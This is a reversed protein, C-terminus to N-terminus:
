STSSEFTIGSGFTSPLVAIIFYDVGFWLRQLLAALPGPMKAGRGNLAPKANRLKSNLGAPANMLKGPAGSLSDPKTPAAQNGSLMPGMKGRGLSPLGQMEKSMPKLGGRRYDRMTLMKKNNGLAGPPAALGASKAQMGKTMPMKAGKLHGPLGPIKKMNKISGQAGPPAAPRTNTARAQMGRPLSKMGKGPTRSPNNPKQVRAGPGAPKRMALRGGPVPMGAANKSIAASSPSKAPESEPKNPESKKGNKEGASPPASKGLGKMSFKAQVGSDEGGKKPQEKNGRDESTSKGSESKDKPKKTDNEVTKEAKGKMKAERKERKTIKMTADNMGKKKSLPSGKGIGVTEEGKGGKKVKKKGDNKKGMENENVEKKGSEKGIKKGQGKEAIKENKTGVKTGHKEKLLGGEKKKAESKKNKGEQKLLKNQREAKIKKGELAEGKQDKKLNNMKSEKGTKAEAAAKGNGSSMVKKRGRREPNKVESRVQGPAKADGKTENGLTKPMLPGVVQPIKTQRLPFAGLAPKAAKRQVQLKRLQLENKPNNLLQPQQGPAACTSKQVDDEKEGSLSDNEDEARM